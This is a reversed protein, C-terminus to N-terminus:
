CDLLSLFFDSKIQRLILEIAIFSLKEQFHQQIFELFELSTYISYGPKFRSRKWAAQCSSGRRTSDMVIQWRQAALTANADPHSTLEIEVWTMSGLAVEM